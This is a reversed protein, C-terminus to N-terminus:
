KTTLVQRYVEAVGQAMSRDSFNEAHRIYAQKRLTMWDLEGTVIREIGARLRAADSPEALVGEVGDRVAYAIGEVKTAVVPVGASLAELVVMPLGEGFLSPLAFIDISTLEAHVDRVFGTWDIAGELGLEAARRHVEKEYIKTEFPGVARLRVDLKRERLAALAELLVELGKRPRFLAVTGLTWARSPAQRHEDFPIGPVGNPVCKIQEEPVGARVM